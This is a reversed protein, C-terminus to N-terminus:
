LALAPPTDVFPPSEWSPLDRSCVNSAGLYPFELSFPDELAPNGPTPDGQGGFRAAITTSSSGTPPAWFPTATDGGRCPKWPSRRGWSWTTDYQTQMRLSLFLEPPELAVLQGPCHTGGRTRKGHSPLSLSLSWAKM